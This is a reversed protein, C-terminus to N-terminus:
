TITLLKEQFSSIFAKAHSNYVDELQFDIGIAELAELTDILELENRNYNLSEFLKEKSEIIKFYKIISRTQKRVSHEDHDLLPIIDTKYQILTYAFMLKLAIKIVTKNTSKFYPKLDPIHINKHLLLADVIEIQHWDSIDYMLNDLQKLGKEALLKVLAILIEGRLNQNKHNLYPTIIQEINQHYGLQTLTKIGTVKKTWSSSKIKIITYTHLELTVFLKDINTKISGSVNDSLNMLIVIAIEKQFKKQTLVKLNQFNNKLESGTSLHKLIQNEIKPKWVRIRQNLYARKIRIYFLILIFLIIAITFLPICLWILQIEWPENYFNSYCYRLVNEIYELIFKM